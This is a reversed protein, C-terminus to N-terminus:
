KAIMNSIWFANGEPMLHFVDIFRQQKEEGDLHIIGHVYVFYGGAASPMADVGEIKRAAPSVLRPFFHLKHEIHFKAKFLDQGVTLYSVDKFLASLAGRKSPDDLNSYFFQVFQQAVEDAKMVAPDQVAGPPPAGCDEDLERFVASAVFPSQDSSVLFFDAFRHRIEVGM